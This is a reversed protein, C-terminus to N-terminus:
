RLVRFLTFEVLLQKVKTVGDCGVSGGWVDDSGVVVAGSIDSLPFKQYNSPM